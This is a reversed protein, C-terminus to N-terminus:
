HGVGWLPFSFGVVGGGLVGGVGGRGRLHTEVSKGV